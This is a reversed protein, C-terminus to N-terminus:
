PVRGRAGGRDRLRAERVEGRAYRYTFGCRHVMFFRGEEPFVGLTDVRAAFTYRRDELTVDVVLPRTPVVFRLAGDPRMGLVEVSEGGDLSALRMRPHATNFFRPLVEVAGTAPDIRVGDRGRLASGRPIPALAMPLPRDDWRRVLAAPDEIRPLAAGDAYREDMLFGTGKPNDPYPVPLVETPAEGGYAHEWTLPLDTFPEPATAVLAGGSRRWRRPGFVALRARWAGVALEVATVPSPRGRATWARGLAYLDVGEKHHADDEPLEGWATAVPERSVPLPSADPVVRGDREVRYTAKAVVAALMVDPRPLSSRYMAAPLDTENVFDM